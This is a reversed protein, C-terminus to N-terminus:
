NVAEIEGPRWTKDFWPDLPKPPRDFVKLTGIRTRVMDPTTISLPLKAANQAGQASGMRAARQGLVDGRRLGAIRCM